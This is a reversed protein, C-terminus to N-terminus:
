SHRFCISQGNLCTNKIHLQVFVSCNWETDVVTLIHSTMKNFVTFQFSSSSKGKKYEASEESLVDPIDSCNLQSSAGQMSAAPDDLAVAMKEEEWLALRVEWIESCDECVAKRLGVSYLTLVLSKSLQRATM